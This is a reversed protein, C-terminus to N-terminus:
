YNEEKLFDDDCFRKNYPNNADWDQIVDIEIENFKKPSDCFSHTGKIVEFEIGALTYAIYRHNGDVILQQNSIKIAGFRYGNLVRKYIRAVIAFCLKHHTTLYTHNTNSIFNQLKELELVHEYSKNEADNEIGEEFM